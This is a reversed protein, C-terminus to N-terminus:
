RLSRVVRAPVGTAVVGAPIDRVAAAGAGIISWAGVRTGPIACSGIGMLVGEHLRVEGALHVGPAVHVFDELLCDHDVSAATNVIAHCGISAGPQIVAGAFVVSGPGITVSPHVFASPHLVTAFRKHLRGAVARRATNSGIGVVVSVGDPILEDAIPGEVVHGLVCTGIRAPDDDLVRVVEGGAAEVSAIVVKAHGGGGAVVLRLSEGM